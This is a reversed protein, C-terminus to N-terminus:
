ATRRYHRHRDLLGEAALTAEVAPRHAVTWEFEDLNPWLALDLGFRECWQLVVFLYADAASLSEGMLYARDTLVEQLYLMADNINGRLVAQTHAPTTPEFLPAFQADLRGAIYALWEHFHYRVMSPGPPPALHSDPAQDAIYALVTPLETLTDGDDLELLPVGGRPNLEHFDHGSATRLTSLDVRDLDFRANAERLAIHAALSRRGPAYYLKM